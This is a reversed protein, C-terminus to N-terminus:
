KSNEKQKARYQRKRATELCRKSCYKRNRWGGRGGHKPRTTFEVHCVNCEILIRAASKRNVDAHQCRVSCYRKRQDTTVFTRRCRPRRCRRKVQQGVTYEGPAHGYRNLRIFGDASRGQEIRPCEEAFLELLQLSLDEYSM